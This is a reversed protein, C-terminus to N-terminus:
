QLIQVETDLEFDINKCAINRLSLCIANEVRM